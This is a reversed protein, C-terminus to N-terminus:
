SGAPALIGGPIEDIGGNQWFHADFQEARSNKQEHGTEGYSESCRGQVNQLSKPEWTAGKKYYESEM